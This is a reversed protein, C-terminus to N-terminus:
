SSLALRNRSAYTQAQKDSIDSTYCLPSRGGPRSYASRKGCKRGARDRNYPCPCSGSYAMISEEIMRTKITELSFASAPLAFCAAGLILALSLRLRM